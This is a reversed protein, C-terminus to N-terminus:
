KKHQQNIILKRLFRIQDAFYTIKQPNALSLQSIIELAKQYEGNKVMVKALSETLTAPVPNASVVPRRVRRKIPHLAEEGAEEAKAAKTEEERERKEEREEDRSLLFSDIRRSTIDGASERGPAPLRSAEVAMQAEMSPASPFLADTVPSGTPADHGFTRIFKDITDNTSLSVPRMDPYFDDFDVDSSGMVRRLADSDGVLCAVRSAADRREEVTLHEGELLYMMDAGPFYPYKGRMEEMLASSPVADGTFISDPFDKKDMDTM